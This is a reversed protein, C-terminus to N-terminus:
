FRKVKNLDIGVDKAEILKKLAPRYSHETAKGAKYLTNLTSVYENIPSSM